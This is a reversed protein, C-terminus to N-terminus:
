APRERYLCLEAARVAACDAAVQAPTGTLDLKGPSTFLNTTRSVRAGPRLGPTAATVTPLSLIKELVGGDLVAAHPAILDLQAAAALRRYPRAARRAFRAPDALAEALVSVQSGGLAARMAPPSIMGGLRAGAEILVPVLRGSPLGGADRGGPGPTAGGAPVLMLEIHAAGARVQLAGLVAAAYRGILGTVPDDGDLLLQLDYISHGDDLERRRDLWADTVYHVPPAGPPAASVTNVTYQWTATGPSGPCSPPAGGPAQGPLHQQVLLGHNYNGIANVRDASRDWADALVAAGRAIRVGDNGASADPKVVVPYGGLERVAAFAAPLTRAPLTRPHAVGAAALAAAQAQKSTRAATSERPNGPLGLLWCLHDALWVGDECGPIVATVGARCLQRMLEPLDGDNTLVADYHGSEFTEFHHVPLPTAPVVAVVRCGLRRLEGAADAGSSFPYVVAACAPVADPGPVGPPRTRTSTRTSALAPRRRPSDQLVRGQTAVV